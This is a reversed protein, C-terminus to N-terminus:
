QSLHLITCPSDLIKRQTFDKQDSINQKRMRLFMVALQHQLPKHMHLCFLELCFYKICRLIKSKGQGIKCKRLSVKNDVEYLEV